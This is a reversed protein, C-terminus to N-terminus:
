WKWGQNRQCNGDKNGKGNVDMTGWLMEMKIVRLMEMKVIEM